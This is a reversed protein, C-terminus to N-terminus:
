HRRTEPWGFANVRVRWRGSPAVLSKDVGRGSGPRVRALWEPVEKPKMKLTEGTELDVLTGWDPTVVGLTNSDPSFAMAVNAEAEEGACERFGVSHVPISRVRAAASVLCWRAHVKQALAPTLCGMCARRPLPNLGYLTETWLFAVYQGDPSLQLASTRGGPVCASSTAAGASVAAM